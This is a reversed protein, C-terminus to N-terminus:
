LPEEFLLKRETSHRNRRHRASDNASKCIRCSRHGDKRPLLNQENYPHGKPCHTKRANVACVGYGCMSNELSTVVRLHDPNVCHRVRCIHDLVMGDPIPGVLETYFLRHARVSRGGRKIMGYKNSNIAGRWLWCGGPLRDVRTLYEDFNLTRRM